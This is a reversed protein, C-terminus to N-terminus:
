GLLGVPSTNITNACNPGLVPMRDVSRRSVLLYVPIWIQIRIIDSYDLYSYYEYLIRINFDLDPYIKLYGFFEFKSLKKYFVKFYIIFLM